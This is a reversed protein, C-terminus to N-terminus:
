SVHLAEALNQQTLTRARRLEHLAMESRLERKTAEVPRRREPTFDKTLERFPQRGSM